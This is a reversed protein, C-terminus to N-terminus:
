QGRCEVALVSDEDACPYPFMEPAEHELFEECTLTGVCASLAEWADACFESFLSAEILNQECWDVCEAESTWETGCM